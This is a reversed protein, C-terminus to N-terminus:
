PVAICLNSPGSPTEDTVTYILKEFSAQGMMTTMRTMRNSKMRMVPYITLKAAETALRFFAM